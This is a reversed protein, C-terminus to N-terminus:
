RRDRAERILQVASEQEGLLRRNEERMRDMRESASKAADLDRTGKTLRDLAEHLSARLEAPTPTTETTKM